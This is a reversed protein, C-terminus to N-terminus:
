ALRVLVAGAAILGAAALRAPTMQESLLLASILTAFLISTERLAAVVAVPAMTMAWLAAAYSAIAGIGGLLGLHGYRSVYRFIAARKVLMSWVLLPISPLLFVWLTYSFPAGSRRVGIGDILTYTAIMVANALAFVLGRRTPERRSGAAMALLSCSGM